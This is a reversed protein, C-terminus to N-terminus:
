ISILFEHPPVWPINLLGFTGLSLLFCRIKLKTERRMGTKISKGCTRKAWSTKPSILSKQFESIPSRTLPTQGSDPQFHVGWFQWPFVSVFSPKRGVNSIIEETQSSPTETYSLGWHMFSISLLVYNQPCATFSSTPSPTSQKSGPSSDLCRHVLRRPDSRM